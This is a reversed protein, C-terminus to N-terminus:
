SKSDNNYNNLNNEVPKYIFDECAFSGSFHNFKFTKIQKKKWIDLLEVFSKSSLGKKFSELYTWRCFDVMDSDTFYLLKNSEHRACDLLKPCTKNNCITM